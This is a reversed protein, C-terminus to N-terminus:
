SPARTKEKKDCTYEQGAHGRRELNLRRHAQAFRRTVECLMHMRELESAETKETNVSKTGVLKSPRRGLTVCAPRLKQMLGEPQHTM